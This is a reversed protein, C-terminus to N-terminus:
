RLRNYDAANMEFTTAPPQGRKGKLAKRWALLLNEWDYVQSYLHRYVKGMTSERNIRATCDVCLTAGAYGRQAHNRTFQRLGRGRNTPLAM